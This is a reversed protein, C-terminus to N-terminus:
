QHYPSNNLLFGGGSNTMEWSMHGAQAAPVGDRPAIAM